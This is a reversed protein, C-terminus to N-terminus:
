FALMTVSIALAATTATSLGYTAGQLANIIDSLNFSITKFAKNGVHFGEQTVDEGVPRETGDDDFRSSLYTMLTIDTNADIMPDEITFARPIFRACLANIYGVLELDSLERCMWQGRM